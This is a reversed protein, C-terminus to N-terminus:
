DVIPDHFYLNIINNLVIKCSSFLFFYFLFSYKRSKFFHEFITSLCTYWLFARINAARKYGCVRMNFQTKKKKRKEIAASHSPFHKLGFGAGFSFLFTVSISSYKCIEEFAPIVTFLAVSRNKYTEEKEQAQENSPFSLM